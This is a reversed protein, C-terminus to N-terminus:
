IVIDSVYRLTYSNDLYDLTTTDLILSLAPAPEQYTTFDPTYM